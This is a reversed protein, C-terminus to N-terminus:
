IVTPATVLTRYWISKKEAFGLNPSALFRQASSRQSSAESKKLCDVPEINLEGNSCFEGIIRVDLPMPWIM